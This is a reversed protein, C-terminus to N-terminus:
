IKSARQFRWHKGTSLKDLYQLSQDWCLWLFCPIIQTKMPCTSLVDGRLWCFYKLFFFLALWWQQLAQVPIREDKQLWWLKNGDLILVSLYMGHKICFQIKIVRSICTYGYFASCQTTENSKYYSCNLIHSNHEGDPLINIDDACGRNSLVASVWRHTFSYNLFYLSKILSSFVDTWSIPIHLGKWNESIRFHGNWPTWAVVWTYKLNLSQNGIIQCLFITKLLEIIWQKIMILHMLLSFINGTDSGFHILITGNYVQTITNCNEM